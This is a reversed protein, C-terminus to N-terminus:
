VIKFASVCVFLFDGFRTPQAVHMKASSEFDESMSIAGREDEWLHQSPSGYFMSVFPLASQGGEIKSLGQLMASRSITDYASLGDVSLITAHPEDRDFRAVRPLHM